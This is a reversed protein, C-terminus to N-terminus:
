RRPDNWVIRHRQVLLRVRSLSTQYMCNVVAFEATLFYVLTEWDGGNLMCSRRPDHWVIRHRQVLLRVQSLSTQYMCNVVAFEAILFYVLTARHAVPRYEECAESIKRNAESAGRLKENVEQATLKTNALVDILETDDLLNGQGLCSPM